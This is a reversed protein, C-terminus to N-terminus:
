TPVATQGTIIANNLICSNNKGGSVVSSSTPLLTCPWKHVVSRWLLYYHRQQQQQQYHHILGSHVYTSACMSVDTTASTDMQLWLSICLFRARCCVLRCGHITILTWAFIERQEQAARTMLKSPSHGNNIEMFKVRRALGSPFTWRCIKPWGM